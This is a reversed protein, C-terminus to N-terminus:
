HYLASAGIGFTTADQQEKLTGFGTDTSVSMSAYSFRGLIGISWQDSVWFDYGGFVVIGGGTPTKKDNDSVGQQADATFKTSTAAAIAPMAGIHGGGHPDFFYDIFPGVFVHEWDNDSTTSPIAPQKFSLNPKSITLVSIGGGIVLGRAVTGGLLIDAGGGSGTGTADIVTENAYSLTLHTTAYGGLLTFRMYFGDHTRVGAATEAQMPGMAPPGYGTCVGRDCMMGAGCQADYTCAPAYGPPPVTSPAPAPQPTPWASPPPPPPVAASPSPAPPPLPAAPTAQQGDPQTCQGKNCIRNGKCDRDSACDAHAASGLLTTAGFSAAFVLTTWARMDNWRRLNNEWPDLSAYVRPGPLDLM